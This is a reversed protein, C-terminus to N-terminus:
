ATMKRHDLWVKGSLIRPAHPNSDWSLTKCLPLKLFYLGDLSQLFIPICMGGPFCPGQFLPGMIGFFLFLTGNQFHPTTVVM